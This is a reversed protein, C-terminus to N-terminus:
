TSQDGQSMLPAGSVVAGVVAILLRLTSGARIIHRLRAPTKTPTHYISFFATRPSFHFRSGRLDRPELTPQGRDLAARAPRTPLPKVGAPVDAIAGGGADLADPRLAM